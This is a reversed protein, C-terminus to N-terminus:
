LHNQVGGGGYFSKSCSLLVDLHEDYAKGGAGAGKGAGGFYSSVALSSSIAALRALILAPLVPLADVM